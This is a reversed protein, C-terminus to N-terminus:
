CAERPLLLPAARAAGCATEGPLGAWGLGGWWAGHRIHRWLVGPEQCGVRAARASAGGGSFAGVRAAAGAWGDGPRADGRSGRRGHHGPQQHLGRPPGRPRSPSADGTPPSPEAGGGWWGAAPGAPLALSLGQTGDAGEDGTFQPGLPCRPRATTDPRPRPGGGCAQSSACPPTHSQALQPAIGACRCSVALRPAM